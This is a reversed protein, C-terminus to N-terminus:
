RACNGRFETEDAGECSQAGYKLRLNDRSSGQYSKPVKGVVVQSACDRGFDGINAVKNAQESEGERKKRSVM